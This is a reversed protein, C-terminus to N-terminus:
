PIVEDAFLLLSRFGCSLSLSSSCCLHCCFETNMKFVRNGRFCDSLLKVFGIDVTSSCNSFMQNSFVASFLSFHLTTIM